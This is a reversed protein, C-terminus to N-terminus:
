TVAEDDYCYVWLLSVLRRATHTGRLPALQPAARKRWSAMIGVFASVAKATTTAGLGGKCLRVAQGIVWVLSRSARPQWAGLGQFVVSEWWRPTGQCGVDDMVSPPLAQELCGHNEGVLTAQLRYGTAHLWQLRFRIASDQEPLSSETWSRDSSAGEHSRGRAAALRWRWRVV